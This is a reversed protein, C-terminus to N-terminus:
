KGREVEDIFDELKLEYNILELLTAEYMQEKSFTTSKFHDQLEQETIM